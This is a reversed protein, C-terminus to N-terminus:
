RLWEIYYGKSRVFISVEKEQPAIINFYLYYSEGPNTVWFDDDDYRIKEIIEPRPEGNYADISVPSLNSVRYPITGDPKMEYGIYDIMFHDPFFELRIDLEGDENIDGENVPISVALEKWTIPGVDSIFDRKQYEGHQNVKVTIGSYSKYVTQFLLAYIPDTNIKKTWELATLGQSGLVVDYFLVTSLLTNRLKLVLNLQGVEASPIKVDLYDRYKIDFKASFMLPDTRYCQNDRKLVLSLADSNESNSVKIPSYLRRTMVFNGDPTPYVNTGSPYEVKQINLLDIYHTELAENTVRISYKGDNEIGQYLLDLDTEQQYKSISYSFLEAKLVQENGQNVYVTPCSGFCCKPCALCYLSLPALVSGHLGLIFSGLNSAPSSELEYYTMAIVNDLPFNHLRLNENSGDIWHRTGRGLVLHNKVEFGYPFLVLSNDNLFVKTPASIIMEKDPLNEKQLFIVKKSPFCGLLLLSLLAIIWRSGSM